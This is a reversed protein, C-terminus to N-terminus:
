AGLQPCLGPTTSGLALDAVIQVAAYTGRRVLITQSCSVQEQKMREATPKAQESFKQAGQNLTDTARGAMPEANNAVYDAAPRIAQQEAKEAAPGAAVAILPQCCM